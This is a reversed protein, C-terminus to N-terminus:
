KQRGMQKRVIMSRTLILAVSAAFVIYSVQENSSGFVGLINLFGLVLTLTVVLWFMLDIWGPHPRTDRPGKM